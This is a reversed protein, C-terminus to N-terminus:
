KRTWAADTNRRRSEAARRQGTSLALPDTQPAAKTRNPRENPRYFRRARLGEDTQRHARLRPRACVGFSPKATRSQVDGPVPTHQGESGSLNRDIGAGTATASEAVVTAPVGMEM